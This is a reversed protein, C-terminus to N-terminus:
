ALAQFIFFTSKKLHKISSSIIFEFITNVYNLTFNYDYDYITEIFKIRSIKKTEVIYDDWHRIFFTMHIKKKSFFFFFFFILISNQQFRVHKNITKIDIISRKTRIKVFMKKEIKTVFFFLRYFVNLILEFIQIKITDIRHFVFMSKIWTSLHSRSNTHERSISFKWFILIITTTKTEIIIKKFFFIDNRTLTEFLTAITSIENIFFIFIM